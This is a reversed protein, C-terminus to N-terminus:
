TRCTTHWTESAALSYGHLRNMGERDACAARRRDDLGGKIAESTGRDQRTRASVRPVLGAGRCVARSATWTTAALLVLAAGAAAIPLSPFAVYWLSPKLEFIVIEAPLLLTPAIIRPAALGEHVGEPSGSMPRDEAGGFPRDGAAGEASAHALPKDKLPMLVM